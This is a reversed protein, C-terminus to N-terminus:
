KLISNNWALVYTCFSVKAKRTFTVIPQAVRETAELPVKQAKISEIDEQQSAELEEASHKVNSVDALVSKNLFKKQGM